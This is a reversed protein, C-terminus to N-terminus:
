AEPEFFQGITPRNMKAEQVWLRVSHPGKILM